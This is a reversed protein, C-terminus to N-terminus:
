LRYLNLLGDIDTVHKELVAEYVHMSTYKDFRYLGRSILEHKLSIIVAKQETTSQSAIKDCYNEVKMITARNFFWVDVNFLDEEIQFEFGHFWVTVGENNVEEKAEYWVPHFTKLVFATLDYLKELSMEDNEVDIDLDNNVMMDMRYSGIVHPVGIKKLEDFLGFEYLIRDSVRKKEKNTTHM